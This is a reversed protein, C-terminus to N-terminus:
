LLTTEIIRSRALGEQLRVCVGLGGICRVPGATYDRRTSRPKTGARGTIPGVNHGEGVALKSTGALQVGCPDGLIAPLGFTSVVVLDILQLRLDAEWERGGVALEEAPHPTV